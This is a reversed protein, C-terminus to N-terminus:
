APAVARDDARVPDPEFFESLGFSALQLQERRRVVRARENRNLVLSLLLDGERIIWGRGIMREVTASLVGIDSIIEGLSQENRATDLHQLLALESQDIDVLEIDDRGPLGRTDRIAHRDGNAVLELTARAAHQKRWHPLADWLPTLYEEPRQQDPYDFEFFYALKGREDEPLPAYIAHYSWYARVNRIGYREPDRWYPSFRDIRIRGAGTPPPLHALLPILQVMTEYEAADEGPFGGLVNWALGVGLEECWKLLQLNQLLTTGKGMLKLTPSSLSEIGPQLQDVGAAALLEIQDKRLNAKTEYFLRLGTDRAALDPLLTKLYKMDVINDSMMFDTSGYRASLAVLEERVREPRKSRYAITGGNLGCFTCHSKAGWWCGRSSEACLNYPSAVDRTNVADIFDDFRPYPLANLDSVPTGTVFRPRGVIGDQGLSALATQVIEVIDIEAEGSVVQDIFPFNAAIAQGMQSECNAGGFLLKLMSSPARKRLAKALALSAANQQFTSTFGILKLDHSSVADAWQEVIEPADVYLPHIAELVADVDGVRARANPSALYARLRATYDDWSIGEDGWLARAFV